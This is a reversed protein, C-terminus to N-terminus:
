RILEAAFTIFKKMEDTFNLDLGVLGKKDKKLGDTFNKRLTWSLERELQRPAERRFLPTEEPRM